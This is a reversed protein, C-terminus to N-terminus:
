TLLYTLLRWIRTLLYNSLRLMHLVHVARTYGMEVTILVDRRQHVILGAVGLRVSAGQQLKRRLEGAHTSGWRFSLDAWAPSALM